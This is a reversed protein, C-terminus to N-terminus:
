LTTISNFEFSFYGTNPRLSLILARSDQVALRNFGIRLEEVRNIATVLRSALSNIAGGLNGQGLQTVADKAASEFESMGGTAGDLTAILSKFGSETKKTSDGLEDITSTAQQRASWNRRLSAIEDETIGKAKTKIESDGGGRRIIAIATDLKNAM